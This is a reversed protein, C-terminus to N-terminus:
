VLVMKKVSTFIKADQGQAIIRYLYVGSAYDNANFTITQQGESMSSNDLLTAVEQGLMNYIKLTVTSAQPLDFDINTTPNFPNPYNQYMAYEVPVPAKPIVITPMVPAPGVPAKLFSATYVTAFGPLVINGAQWATPDPVISAPHFATNISAALDSMTQFTAQPVFEWLTMTTEAKLVFAAITWGQYPGGDNIIVAGLPGGNQVFGNAPTNVALNMELALLNAALLNNSKDPPLSKLLKLLLGGKQDFDLGRPSASHGAALKKSYMTTFVDTVKAPMVYGKIKGGANTKGPTGLILTGTAKAFVQAAVNQVNPVTPKKATWAKSAKLAFAAIYDAPTLTTYKLSDVGKFFGFIQGTVDTGSVADFEYSVAPQTQVFGAPAVATLTYHGPGNNPVSFVGAVDPSDLSTPSGVPPTVAVHFTVGGIPATEGGEQTGNFNLDRYESGSITFRIFAGFNNNGSAGNSNLTVTYPTNLTYQYNGAVVPGTLSATHALPGLNQALYAGTGDTTDDQAGEGTVHVIFGPLGPEGGDKV